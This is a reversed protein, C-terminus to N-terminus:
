TLWTACATHDFVVTHWPECGRTRDGRKGLLCRHVISHHYEVPVDQYEPGLFRSAHQADVLTSLGQTSLLFIRGSNKIETEIILQQLVPVNFHEQMSLRLELPVEPQILDLRGSECKRVYEASYLDNEATDIIANISRTHYCIRHMLEGVIPCNNYNWKLSLARARMLGDKRSERSSFYRMPMIFTNRVTKIPDRIIQDDYKGCVVGCFSADSFHEAMEFKLDLGMDAILAEDVTACKCLGDDGEVVGTFHLDIDDVVEDNTLGKRTVLYSMILLNLVGNASSTWMSGSMLKETVVAKVNKFKTVNTGKMINLVHRRVPKDITLQRMMHKVWYYVVETYVGRHHAEFSSFDTGMVASSGFLSRLRSPWSKPDTGKVFWKKSFTAKDIAHVVPGLVCKSADSPSNIARPVKPKPYSEWKIFSKSSYFKRDCVIPGSRLAALARKRALSYKVKGLWGSFDKVDDDVIPTFHKRIFKKAYDRFDDEVKIPPMERGFRHVCAAVQNSVDLGDPIFAPFQVRGTVSDVARISHYFGVPRRANDVRDAIRLGLSPDPENISLEYHDM